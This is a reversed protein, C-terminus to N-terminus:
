NNEKITTPHSQPLHVSKLLKKIYIAEITVEYFAILEAVTTSTTVTSQKKSCWSILNDELYFCFGTTSKRNASNAFDSDVYDMLIATLTSSNSRKKRYIMKFDLTAKVYALVKKAMVLYYSDSAAAYRNM